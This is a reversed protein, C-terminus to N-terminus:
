DIFWIIADHLGLLSLPLGVVVVGACFELVRGRRREVQPAAAKLRLFFAIVLVAALIWMVWMCATHVGTAIGGIQGPDDISPRPRHGLQAYAVAWDCYVALVMLM